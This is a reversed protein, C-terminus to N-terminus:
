RSASQIVNGKEDYLIWKGSRKNASYQGKEKISGNAYLTIYSGNLSDHRYNAELYKNGQEDWFTWKGSIQGKCYFGKRRIQGNKYWASAEGNMLGKKFTFQEKVVDSNNYLVLM